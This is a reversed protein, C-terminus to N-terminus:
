RGSKNRRDNLDSRTLAGKWRLVDVIASWNPGRMGPGELAKDLPTEIYGGSSFNPDAGANLLVEVLSLRGSCVANYLPSTVGPEGSWANPDAGAELLMKVIAIEDPSEEQSLRNCAGGLAHRIPVGKDVLLKATAYQAEKCALWLHKPELTAGGELLAEVVAVHGKVIAIELVDYTGPGRRWHPDARKRLLMRVSELNGEWAAHYLQECRKKKSVFIGFM